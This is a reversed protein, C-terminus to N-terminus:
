SFHFSLLLLPLLLFFLFLLFLFFFAQAIAAVEEDPALSSTQAETIQPSGGQILRILM